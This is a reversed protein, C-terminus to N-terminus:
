RKITPPQFIILVMNEDVNLSKYFKLSYFSCALTFTATTELKKPERLIVKIPNKSSAMSKYIEPLPVLNIVRALTFQHVLLTTCELKFRKKLIERKKPKRKSFWVRVSM